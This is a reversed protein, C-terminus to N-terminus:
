EKFNLIFNEISEMAIEEDEGEVRITIESGKSLAMSMINLISKANAVKTGKIIKINSKFGNMLTVLQSAPRAHLGTENLILMNKEIM